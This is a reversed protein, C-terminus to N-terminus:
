LPKCYAIKRAHTLLLRGIWETFAPPIAEALEKVTMWDIAMARRWDAVTFGHNGSTFGTAKGGTHGYVGVPRGNPWQHNCTPTLALEQWSTEFIRHRQVELGFMSGCLLIDARLPAGVVNEMVWPIGSNELKSRVPSILDPHNRGRIPQAATFAQCPPSAHIVDFGEVPFDLANAQHFEFPFHKQPAIDVGVVDFGARHYGMASGGAGCFLDLLKM